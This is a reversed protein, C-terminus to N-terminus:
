RTQTRLRSMFIYITIIAYQETGAAVTALALALAAIGVALEKAQPRLL